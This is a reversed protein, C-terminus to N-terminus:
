RSEHKMIKEEVAKRLLKIYLNMQLETEKWDQQSVPTAYYNIGNRKTRIKEFFGWDLELDPYKVCLYAFLCQHNSSKIKDFLLYAEVIEHLVDYYLKYASNWRKKALIDKASALDEEAIKLNAKIKDLNVEEQPQFNGECRCREYVDKKKRFVPM